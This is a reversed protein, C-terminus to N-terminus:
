IRVPMLIATWTIGDAVIEYTNPKTPNSNTHRMPIPEKNAIVAASKCLTALFQPNYGTQHFEHPYHMPEPWLKRWEPFKGHDTRANTPHSVTSKIVADTHLEATITDPTLTLITSTYRKGMQKALETFWKADITVSGTPSETPAPMTCSVLMYSDTATMQWVEASMELFIASIQPRAQDKCAALATAQIMRAMRQSQDESLHVTHQTTIPEMNPVQDTTKM